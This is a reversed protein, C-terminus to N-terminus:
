LLLGRYTRNSFLDTYALYTFMLLCLETQIPSACATNHHFAIRYYAVRYIGQLLPYILYTTTVETDGVIWPHFIKLLVLHM